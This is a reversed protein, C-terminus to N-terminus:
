KLTYIRAEYPSVIEQQEKYNSLVLKDVEVGDLVPLAMEKDTFNLVVLWEEGDLQRKYIFFEESDPLM